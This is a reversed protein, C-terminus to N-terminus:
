SSVRRRPAPKAISALWPKLKARQGRTHTTRRQRRSAREDEAFDAGVESKRLNGAGILAASAPHSANSLATTLLMATRAPTDSTTRARLSHAAPLLGTLGLAAVCM